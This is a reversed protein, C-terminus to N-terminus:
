LVVRGYPLFNFICLGPGFGGIWRLALLAHFAIAFTALAVAGFICPAEIIVTITGGFKGEHM